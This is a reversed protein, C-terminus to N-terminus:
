ANNINRLVTFYSFSAGIIARYTELSMIYLKGGTLYSPKMSRSIMIRMNKRFYMSADIWPTDYIAKTLSDSEYTLDNGYWCFLLLQSLAVALLGCFSLQDMVGDSDLNLALYFLILCITCTSGFFQFFLVPNLLNEMNEVLELIYQHHHICELLCKDSKSDLDEQLYHAEKINENQGKCTTVSERFNATSFGPQERRSNECELAESASFSEM